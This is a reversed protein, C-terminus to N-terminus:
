EDGFGGEEYDGRAYEKESEKILNAIFKKFKPSSKEFEEDWKKDQESRTVKNAKELLKKAKNMPEDKSM